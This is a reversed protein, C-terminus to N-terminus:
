PPSARMLDCMARVAATRRTQSPGATLEVSAAIDILNQPSSRVAKAAKAFCSYASALEEVPVRARVANQTLAAEIVAGATASSQVTDASAARPMAFLGAVMAIGVVFSRNM